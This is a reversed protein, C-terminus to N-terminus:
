RLRSPPTTRQLSARRSPLCSMGGLFDMTTIALTTLTVNIAFPDTCGPLLPSGALPPLM